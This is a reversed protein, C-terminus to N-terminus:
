RSTKRKTKKAKVKFTVLVHRQNGDADKASLLVRHRGRKLTGVTYTRTGSRFPRGKVRRLLRFRKSQPRGRDLRARVTASEDL